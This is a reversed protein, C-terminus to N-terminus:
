FSGDSILNLQRVRQRLRDMLLPDAVEIIVKDGEKIVRPQSLLQRLVADTEEKSLAKRLAVQYLLSHAKTKTVRLAMVLDYEDLQTPLYGLRQLARIAAVEHEVVKAAGFVPSAHPALLDKLAAACIEHDAEDIRAEIDPRNM